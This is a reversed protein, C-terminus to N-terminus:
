KQFKQSIDKYVFSPKWTTIETRCNQALVSEFGVTLWDLWQKTLELLNKFSLNVQYWSATIIGYKKSRQSLAAPWSNQSSNVLPIKPVYTSNMVGKAHLMYSPLHVCCKSNEKLSLLRLGGLSSTKQLTQALLSSAKIKATFKVKPGFQADIGTVRTVQLVIASAQVERRVFIM